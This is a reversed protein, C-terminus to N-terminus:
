REYSAQQVESSRKAYYRDITADHRQQDLFSKASQEFKRDKVADVLSERVLNVDKLAPETRGICFLVVAYPGMAVPKAVQGVQLAFAAAELEPQKGGRGIPPLSFDDRTADEAFAKAVAIFAEATDVNKAQQYAENGRAEGRVVIALTKVRPGFAVDFEANVEVDSAILKQQSEMWRRLALQKWIVRRRYADRISSEIGAVQTMFRDTDATGDERLLGADMSRRQLCGDIDAKSITQKASELGREILQEDILEDLMRDGFRVLCKEALQTRTISQGNVVAVIGAKPPQADARDFYTEISATARLEELVKKAHRPAKQRRLQASLQQRMALQQSPDPIRPAIRQVCQLIVYRQSQEGGYAFVPSIENEHLAFAAQELAVDDSHHAIPEIFGRVSASHIDESQDKAVDGFSNPDALVKAHLEKALGEDSVMIMRCKIKEGYTSEYVRNFEETTFEVRREALKTLALDMWVVNECYEAAPIGFKEEMLKILPEGSVGFVSGRSEIEGSVDKSSVEIGDAKCQELVLLQDIMKELVRAGHQQMTADALQDRTISRGEVVAAIEGDKAAASSLNSSLVTSPSAGKGSPATAAQPVTPAATPPGAQVLAPPCTGLLAILVSRRIARLSGRHTVSQFAPVPM